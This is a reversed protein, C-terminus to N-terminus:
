TYYPFEVMAGMLTIGLLVIFYVQILLKSKTFNKLLDWLLFAYAIGFLSFVTIIPKALDTKSGGQLFETLTLGFVIIVVQVLVINRYDRQKELSLSTKIADLIRPMYYRDTEHDVTVNSM